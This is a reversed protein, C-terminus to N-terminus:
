GKIRYKGPEIELSDNKINIIYYQNRNTYKKRDPSNDCGAEIYKIGNKESSRYYERDGSIVAKVPYKELIKQLYVAKDTVTRGRYQSFIRYHTFVVIQSSDRHEDLDNRLWQLQASDLYDRDSDSSSLFILHVGGYNLSHYKRLKLNSYFIDNRGNYCDREGALSHCIYSNSNIIPLLLRYQREMDEQLIGETKRGGYTTNGLHVTLVPHCNNIERYLGRLHNFDPRFPSLPSSNGTVAFKISSQRQAATSCSLLVPLVVALLLFKIINESLRHSIFQM